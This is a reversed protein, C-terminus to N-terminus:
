HFQCILKTSVVRMQLASYKGRGWSAHECTSPLIRSLDCWEQIQFQHFVPYPARFRLSIPSMSFCFVILCFDYATSKQFRHSIRHAAVVRLATLGLCCYRPCLLYRLDFVKRPFNCQLVLQISPVKLAPGCAYSADM